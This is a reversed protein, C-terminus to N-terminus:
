WDSNGPKRDSAVGAGVDVQINDPRVQGLVRELFVRDYFRVVAGALEAEGAVPELVACGIGIITDRRVDAIERAIHIDM